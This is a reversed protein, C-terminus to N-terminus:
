ARRLDFKKHCSVCLRRWDTIDKKYQNSINAWHFRRSNTDKLGCNECKCPKGYMKSVWWHAQHYHPVKKGDIVVPNLKNKWRCNHCQVVDVSQLWKNCEKCQSRYWVGDIKKYKNGVFKGSKDRVM